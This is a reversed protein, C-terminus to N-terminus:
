GSVLTAHVTATWRITKLNEGTVEIQLAGNTTDASVVATWTSAGVDSDTTQYLSGVLATAAASAGRKVCGEIKWWATDGTTNQRAAIQVIFSICSNNALSFLRNAAFGPLGGGDATLISPTNDTTQRRLIMRSYQSDGVAAFQGSAHSSMGYKNAVGQFGGVISTYLSSSTNTRGVAIANDSSASTSNGGIVTANTGSATCSTGGVVTAQGSSATNAFGGSITSDAGSATNRRGGGIASNTGSAVQAAANRETQWDVSRNGRANGGSAAGNPAQAILSGNSGSPQLVFDANTSLAALGNYERSSFSGTLELIGNLASGTIAAITVAGNSGTTITVNSGQILYSTGDTLKTLSGSLGQNFLVPGTFTSGSITAVVSNDISFQNGVSLNLGTGATYTTNTDTAAITVSGNSGTTIAVNPGQILYSTGDTLKTLSGSLGQNFLVPGTFTSGSITAVVSDDISFQNGVSLNLGTGATYTTDTDTAAITVSGNSGTTISVNSGEILYSTGDTLKTLSGSLGQSFLVPGTFTSGSITAVVSDDISFQNGISLNLGTGATYTTNTDTAAITVSGNSGTTITVNPGQILYSTGDTLKTLSGSLGQNFLVPGTFTSGSITAVVSDDISFENGVSLNLGTGATYTTNTDTASITISGNSGSVISVNSGEILYSTGDNLKTLSGSLSTVRINGGTISISGSDQTAISGLGLNNRATPADSAGTGGDAVAVDAGGVTYVNSGVDLTINGGAGGDTLVIRNATGTLIRENTLSPNSALTVYQADIPAGGGGGGGTASITISGNSGTVISIDTGEILYSTGDTLQTLSGSIGNFARIKGAVTLDSFIQDIVGVDLSNPSIVKVIDGTRKDRLTILNKDKADRKEIKVSL